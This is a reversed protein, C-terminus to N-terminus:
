GIHDIIAAVQTSVLILYDLDHPTYGNQDIGNDLYIIGYAGTPAVIPCAMASRLNELGAYSSESHHNSSVDPLLIYNTKDLAEKIIHKGFICALDVEIGGRKCGGHCTLPGSTTERLGAWVHYADLQELLMRILESILTEQDKASFLTVSIKYFDILRQPNLHLPQKGDRNTQYVVNDMQASNVITDNLDLPQDKTHLMFSEPEIHVELSFDAIGIIDGEHIPIKTIPRGNVTTRNASKLDQVVWTKDATTILVAHQRSVSRDPLFVHCQPKRGIYIPGDSFRLDHILSHGRKVLLRM